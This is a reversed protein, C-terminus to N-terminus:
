ITFAITPSNSVVSELIFLSTFLSLVRKSNFSTTISPTEDGILKLIYSPSITPRIPNTPALFLSIASARKPSLFIRLPSITSFPFFTSIFFM